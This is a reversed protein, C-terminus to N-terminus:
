TESPPDDDRPVTPDIKHRQRRKYAKPNPEVKPKFRGSGLAKAAVNRPKPPAKKKPKRM